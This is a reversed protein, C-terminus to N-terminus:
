ITFVTLNKGGPVQFNEVYAKISAGFFLTINEAFWKCYTEQIFFISIWELYYQDEIRLIPINVRCFM